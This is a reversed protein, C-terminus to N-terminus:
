EDCVCTGECECPHAALWARHDAVVMALDPDVDLMMLAEEVDLANPEGHSM